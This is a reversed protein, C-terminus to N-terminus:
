LIEVEEIEEIVEIDKVNGVKQFTKVIYNMDKKSTEISYIYKKGELFNYFNLDYQYFQIQNSNKDSWMHNYILVQLKHTLNINQTCKIEHVNNHIDIVDIEGEMLLKTVPLNFNKFIDEKINQVYTWMDSFMDKYDILISRYKEGFNNIHFYHTTDVAHTVVEMLFLTELSYDNWENKGDLYDTYRKKIYSYNKTAMEAYFNDNTFHYQELPINRDLSNLLNTIVFHLKKKTKDYQEWTVNTEEHYWKWFSFGDIIVVNSKKVIEEVRPLRCPQHGFRVAYQYKFILETLKGLFISHPTKVQRYDTSYLTYTETNVIEFRKSLNYLDVETMKQIIKTIQNISDDREVFNLSGYKFYSPNTIRYLESPIINFWPNFNRMNDNSTYPAFIFLNKIARTCAVYLLYQDHKHREDTFYMKNILGSEADTMIVHDWELGKSGTYTLLNIHGSVRKYHVKDTEQDTAEDYYQVFPIKLKALINSIFCLGKSKNRRSTKLYGRTPSLIAIDAYDTHPIKILGTIIDNLINEFVKDTGHGIFIPKVPKTTDRNHTVTINNLPRLHKSFEVIHKYSRYNKTLHFVKAKMKELYADISGRWQYINQNPDGVLNIICGLKKKMLSIISFQTKNLDQAEDVFLCKITNLKSDNQLDKASTKLYVLLTYSLTAIDVDNNPDIIKKAFSDITRVMDPNIHTAGYKEMKNIFDNQTPRSFTVMLIENDKYVGNKILNEIRAIICRTKGSGACAILKTDKQELYEIYATQEESYQM